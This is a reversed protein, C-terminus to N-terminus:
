KGQPSVTVEVPEASEVRLWVVLDSTDFGHDYGVRFDKGQPVNKGDLALSASGTGWNKIVLALNVVPSDESAQLEFRLEGPSGAQECALVYARQPPDYGESTYGSGSLSLEPAHLWSKAIPALAVAL